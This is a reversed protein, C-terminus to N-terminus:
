INVVTLVDNKMFLFQLRAISCLKKGTSQLQPKPKKSGTPYGCEERTSRRTKNAFDRNKNTLADNQNPLGRGKNPQQTYKSKDHNFWWIQSHKILMNPCNGHKCRYTMHKLQGHEMYSVTKFQPKTRTDNHYQYWVPTPLQGMVQTYQVDGSFTAM